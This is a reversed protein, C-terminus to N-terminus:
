PPQGALFLFLLLLQGLRAEDGQLRVLAVAHSFDGSAEVEELLAGFLCREREMGRITGDRAFSM